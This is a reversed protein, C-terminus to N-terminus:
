GASSLREPEDDIWDIDGTTDGTAPPSNLTAIRNRGARKADYLATDARKLATHLDEGPHWETAGISLTVPTQSLCRSEAIQARLRDFAPAADDIGTRTLAVLFEEGGWRCVYDSSRFAATLQNSLEMLVSDGVDHGHKDNVLKFHDVDMLALTVVVDHRILFDSLELLRTEMGRRNLLDTLLDREAMERLQGTLREQMYEYTIALMAAAWYALSVQLWVSADIAEAAALVHAASIIVFHFVTLVVGSRRGGLFVYLVPMVPFWVLNTTSDLKDVSGIVALVFVVVLTLGAVRSVGFRRVSLALFLVAVAAVGDVLTAMHYGQSYDVWALVPLISLAVGLM